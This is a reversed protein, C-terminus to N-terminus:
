SCHKQFDIKNDNTLATMYLILSQLFISDTNQEPPQLNKSPFNILDKEFPNQLKRKRETPAAM